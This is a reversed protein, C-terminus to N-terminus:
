EVTISKLNRILNPLDSKKGSKRSGQYILFVSLLSVVASIIFTITYGTQQAIIGSLVTAAIGGLFMVSVQITYDTAATSRDSLRGSLRGSV